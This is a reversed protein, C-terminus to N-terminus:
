IVISNLLHHQLDIVGYSTRLNDFIISIYSYLAGADQLNTWVNCYLKSQCGALQKHDRELFQTGDVIDPLISCRELRGPGIRRLPLM